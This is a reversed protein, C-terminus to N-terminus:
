GNRLGKEVNTSIREGLSNVIPDIFRFPPVYGGTRTGHGTNIIVPIPVGSNTLSDNSIILDYGYKTTAVDSHWSGATKGTDRPTNAAFETVAARGESALMSSYDTKGLNEMARIFSGGTNSVSTTIKM